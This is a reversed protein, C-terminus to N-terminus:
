FEVGTLNLDDVGYPFNCPIDCDYIYSQKDDGIIKMQREDKIVGCKDFNTNVNNHDLLLSYSLEM